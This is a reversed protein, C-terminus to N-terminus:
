AEEKVVEMRYRYTVVVRHYLFPIHRGNHRIGKSSVINVGIIM